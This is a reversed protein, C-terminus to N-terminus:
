DVTGFVMQGIRRKAELQVEVADAQTKRDGEKKAFRAMEGACGLIVKVEKIPLEPQELRGRAHDFVRWTQEYTLPEAKAKKKTRGM